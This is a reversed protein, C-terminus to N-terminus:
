SEFKKISRKSGTKVDIRELVRVMKTDNEFKEARAITIQERDFFKVAEKMSLTYALKTKGVTLTVLSDDFVVIPKGNFYDVGGINTILNLNRGQKDEANKIEAYMKSNVLTILNASVAPVSEDMEKMIVKYDVATDAITVKTANTDICNLIRANETRTAKELFVTKAINEIDVVADDVSESSLRVLKGIKDVKYDISSTALSDDEIDAGELVTPLKDGQELDVMPKSGTNSTVPIVHCLHKLAGYGKRLEELENIFQKPVVASNDAIKIVAREEENMEHGLVRKTLARMEDVKGNTTRSNANENKQETLDRKEAEELAVLNDIKKQTSRMEEIKAEAEDIKGEENLSRAEGKLKNWLARLEEITM